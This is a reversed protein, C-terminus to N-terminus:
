LLYLMADVSLDSGPWVHVGGGEDNKKLRQESLSLPKNGSSVEARSVHHRLKRRHNLKPNERLSNCACAWVCVCVCLRACEGICQSGFTKWFDQLISLLIRICTLSFLLVYHNPYKYQRYILLTSLSSPLFVKVSTNQASRVWSVDLLSCSNFGPRNRVYVATVHLSYM